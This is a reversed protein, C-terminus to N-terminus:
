KNAAFRPQIRALLMVAAGAALIGAGAYFEAQVRQFKELDQADYTRLEEDAIQQIYMLQPLDYVLILLGLILVALGVFFVRGDVM